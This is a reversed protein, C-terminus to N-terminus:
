PAGRNGLLQASLFAEVQALGVEPQEEQIVHGLKPLVVTSSQRLVSAYSAANNSPIMHDNEGWILLTPATIKKLRPIPNSYMTQDARDLIAARVGPARLMDHYRNLMQETLGQPDSFAAEVFRRVFYEPLCYKMLGMIAPVEYPKTGWQAEPAFGDPAMLVLAKVREPQAAALGWAMKGGLSHGVISFSSVNLKNVFGILTALDQDESYNKSPSEGTLGFGPLDLRIVRFNLAFQPAWTDWTQQSSGFGHLLLLAPANTPGADQYNVRLGDVELVRQSAAGYRHLLEARDLDPTWLGYLGAALVFAGILLAHRGHGPTM